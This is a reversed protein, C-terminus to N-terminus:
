ITSALLAFTAEIIPPSITNIAFPPSTLLQCYIHYSHLMSIHESQLSVVIHMQMWEPCISQDVQTSNHM